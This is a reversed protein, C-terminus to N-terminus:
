TMPSSCILTVESLLSQTCSLSFPYAVQVLDFPIQRELWVSLKKAVHEELWTSESGDM